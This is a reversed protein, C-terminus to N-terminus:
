NKRPIEGILPDILFLKRLFRNEVVKVVEDPRNGNAWIVWFLKRNSDKLCKSLLILKTYILFSLLLVIVRHYTQLLNILTPISCVSM